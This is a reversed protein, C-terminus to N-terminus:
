QRPEGSKNITNVVQYELLIYPTKGTGVKKILASFTGVRDVQDEGSKKYSAPTAHKDVTSGSGAVYIVGEAQFFGKGAQTLRAIQSFWQAEGSAEPVQYESKQHKKIKQGFYRETVKDVLAAPIIATNGDKSHKIAKYNNKYIHDLAFKLLAEHSLSNQKFSDMAVESFNSFFTDLQRKQAATMKIETQAAALSPLLLCITLCTTLFKM